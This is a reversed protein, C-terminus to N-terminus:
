QSMLKGNSLTVYKNDVTVTLEQTTKQQTKDITPFWASSSETEGQTWIQTPKNKDEGKPNIFYMGKIGLMADKAYREEFEDPKATYEIYVTYAETAKYTKDLKIQLQWDDYSYKLPVQQNGKVLNVKKIEMGKADLTLSDTAYFHPKLTIWAKGYLWSKSFDPKVELKTHVLNNIRTATERYEKKWATDAAPKTQAMIIFGTLVFSVSLL